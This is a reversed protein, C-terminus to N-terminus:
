ELGEILLGANNEFEVKMYKMAMQMAARKYNPNGLLEDIDRAISETSDSSGATKATGTRELVRAVVHQELTRPVSLIPLGLLLATTTTAVGSTIVLHARPLLFALELPQAHFTIRDFRTPWQPPCSPMVCLVEAELSNLVQLVSESAPAQPHLYAFIRAGAGSGKWEVRHIAPLAFIPGVYQEQLRAGFPDLEPLTTLRVKEAPFLDSLSEIAPRQLRSLTTNINEVIEVERHEALEREAVDVAQRFAPLPPAAPPIDFAGGVLLTPICLVRAALVATPANVYILLKPSIGTLLAIWAETAAALGAPDAYGLGWLLDAFNLAGGQHPAPHQAIRLIPAQLLPFDDASFFFRTAANLDSVALVVEHGTARYARAMALMCGLHGWDNAFEGAILVRGAGQPKLTDSPEVRSQQRRGL